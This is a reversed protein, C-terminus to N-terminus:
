KRTEPLLNFQIKNELSKPVIWWHNQRYSKKCPGDSRYFMDIIVRELNGSVQYTFEPAQRCGALDTRIGVISEKEFDMSLNDLSKCVSSHSLLTKLDFSTRIVYQNRKIPFGICASKAIFIVNDPNVVQCEAEQFPLLFFVTFFIASFTKMCYGVEIRISILIGM